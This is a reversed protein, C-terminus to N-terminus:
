NPTSNPASFNHNIDDRLSDFDFSHMKANAIYPAYSVYSPSSTNTYNGIRIFSRNEPTTGPETRYEKMLDFGPVNIGFLLSSIYNNNTNIKKSVIFIFHATLYFKMKYTGDESEFLQDYLKYSYYSNTDKNYRKVTITSDTYLVSLIPYGSHDKSFCRFIPKEKNNENPNIKFDFEIMIGNDNVQLFPDFYINERELMTGPNLTQWSLIGFTVTPSYSFPPADQASIKGNFLCSIILFFYIKGWYSKKFNAKM